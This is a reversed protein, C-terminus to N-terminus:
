RIIIVFHSFPTVASLSAIADLVGTKETAALSTYTSQKSILVVTARQGEQFLAAPM